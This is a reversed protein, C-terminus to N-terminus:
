QKHICEALSGEQLHETDMKKQAQEYFPLREKLKQEIFFLLEAPNINKLLPRQETEDLLREYIYQPTARLYVTLGNENMWDMNDAFCPTGGGCAILCNDEAAFSRLLTAEMKRFYAEGEIEFIDAVSKKLQGEIVADLDIFQMGAQRAWVRGWYTKGSGMFGLLFIKM